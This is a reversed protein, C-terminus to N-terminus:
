IRMGPEQGEIPVRLADLMRPVGCYFAATLTLELREEPDFHRDIEELVADPVEGDVMADTLALAARDAADFSPATRWMALDAVETETVGSEAAMWRHQHWEYPSEHRMATRLIVLERLRRPTREAARLKWAFELFGRLLDPSNALAHYLNLQRVGADTVRAQVDDPLPVLPIGTM